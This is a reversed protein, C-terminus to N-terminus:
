QQKLTNSGKLTRSPCKLQFLEPPEAVFVSGKGIFIISKSSLFDQNPRVHGILAFALLDDDAVRSLGIFIIFVRALLHHRLPSGISTLSQLNDDSGGVSPAPALAPLYGPTPGPEVRQPRDPAYIRITQSMTLCDPCNL